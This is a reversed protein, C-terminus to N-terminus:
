DGAKMRGHDRENGTRESTASGSQILSTGCRPGAHHDPTADDADSMAAIQERTFASKSGPILRPQKSAM